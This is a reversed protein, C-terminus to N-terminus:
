KRGQLLRELRLKMKQALVNKIKKKMKKRKRILRRLKDHLLELKRSKEIYRKKDLDEINDTM